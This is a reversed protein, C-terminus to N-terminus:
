ERMLDLFRVFERLEKESLRQKFVGDTELVRKEAEVVRRRGKATLYLEHRRRDIVSRRREVLGADELKDMIAMTTARDLNLAEGLVGQSMGENSAVLTLLSYQIPTMEVKQVFAKYIAREALRVRFGLKGKLVQIDVVQDSRDAKEAASASVSRSKPM